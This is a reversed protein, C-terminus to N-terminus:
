KISDLYSNLHDLTPLMPHDNRTYNCTPTPSDDWTVDVVRLTELSVAVEGMCLESSLAASGRAPINGEALYKIADRYAALAVREWGGEATFESRTKSHPKPSSGSGTSASKGQLSKYRGYRADVERLYQTLQALPPVSILQSRTADCISGPASILDAGTVGMKTEGDVELTVELTAYCPDTAVGSIKYYLVTKCMGDGCMPTVGRELARLYAAEVLKKWGGQREWEYRSITDPLGTANSTTTRNSQTTNSHMVNTNSNVVKENESNKTLSFDTENTFIPETELVISAEVPVEVQRSNEIAKATGLSTPAFAVLGTLFWTYFSKM